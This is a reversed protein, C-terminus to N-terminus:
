WGRQVTYFQDVTAATKAGARTVATAFITVFVCVLAVILWYDFHRQQRPKPPHKWAGSM